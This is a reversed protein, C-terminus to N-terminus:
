FRRQAVFKNQQTQKLAWGFKRSASRVVQRSYGARIDRVVQEYGAQVRVQGDRIAVSLGGRSANLVRGHDAVEFGLEKLAAILLERDAAKLELTNYTISDCPPM